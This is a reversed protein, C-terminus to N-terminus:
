QWPSGEELADAITLTDAGLPANFLVPAGGQSRLLKAAELLRSSRVRYDQRIGGQVTLSALSAFEAAKGELLQAAALRVDQGELSLLAGIETDSRTRDGGTRSISSVDTDGALLRVQGTLNLVDYTFDPM